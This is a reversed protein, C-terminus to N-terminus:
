DETVRDTFPHTITGENLSKWKSIFRLTLKPEQTVRWKVVHAPSCCM